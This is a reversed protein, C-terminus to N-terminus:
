FNVLLISTLSNGFNGGSDLIVESLGGNFFGPNLGGSSTDFQLSSQSLDCSLVRVVDHLSQLSALFSPTIVSIYPVM